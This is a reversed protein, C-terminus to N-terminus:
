DLWQEPIHRFYPHKRKLECLKIARRVLNMAYKSTMKKTDTDHQKLNSNNHGKLDYTNASDYKDIRLQNVSVCGCVKPRAQQKHNAWLKLLKSKLSYFTKNNKGKRPFDKKGVLKGIEIVHINHKELLRLAEKTFLCLFSIILVKLGGAFNKFRDLIETKVIETGYPRDFKRWNKVEIAM